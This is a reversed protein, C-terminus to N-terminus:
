ALAVRCGARRLAGALRRGFTPWCFPGVKEIVVASMPSLWPTVDSPRRCACAMVKTAPAIAETERQLAMVTSGNAAEGRGARHMVFVVMQLPRDGACRSAEGMARRTGAYSEGLVYVIGGATLRERVLQLTRRNSTRQEYELFLGWGVASAAAVDVGLWIPRIAILAGAAVMSTLGAVM